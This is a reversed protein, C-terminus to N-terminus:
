NAEPSHGNGQARYRDLERELERRQQRIRLNALNHYMRASVLDAVALLIIWFALGLIALWFLAFAVPAQRFFPLLDGLPIFLGSLVILVSVQLRRRLQRAAHRRTLEDDGAQPQRYRWQFWGLGIGFALLLGGACLAPISDAM